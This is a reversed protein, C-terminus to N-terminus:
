GLLHMVLAAEIDTGDRFPEVKSQPSNAKIRENEYRCKLKIATTSSPSLSEEVVRYIYDFGSVRDDRDRAAYVEDTM